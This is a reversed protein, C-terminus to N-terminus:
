PPPRRKRVQSRKEEFRQLGTTWTTWGSFGQQDVGEDGGHVVLHVVAEGSGYDVM